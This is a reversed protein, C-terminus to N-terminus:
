RRKRCLGLNFRAARVIPLWAEGDSPPYDALIREDSLAAEEAYPALTRACDDPRGLRYQAIAIDNRVRGEEYRDLTRRCRDLLPSLTALAEAYRKRDYQRKFADRTASRADDGCGAAPRLYLGVFGARMGCFQRCSPAEASVDVGEATTAFAIVCDAEGDADGPFTARGRVITGEVSCIHFNGGVADIAFPLGERTPASISLRGWGGEPIYEGPKPDAAVAAGTTALAAALWMAYPRPM